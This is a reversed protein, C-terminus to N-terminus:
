WISVSLNRLMELYLNLNLNHILKLKYQSILTEGDPPNRHLLMKLPCIQICMPLFRYIYVHLLSGYTDASRFTATTLQKPFNM